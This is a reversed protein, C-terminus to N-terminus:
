QQGAQRRQQKLFDPPLQMDDEPKQKIAFEYQAKVYGATYAVQLLAELHRKRIFM